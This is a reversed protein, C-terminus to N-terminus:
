QVKEVDTKALEGPIVSDLIRNFKAMIEESFSQNAIELAERMEQTHQCYKALVAQELLSHGLYYFLEEKSLEPRDLFEKRISIGKQFTDNNKNWTIELDPKLKDNVECLIFIFFPADAHSTLRNGECKDYYDLFLGKSYNDQEHKRQNNIIEGVINCIIM